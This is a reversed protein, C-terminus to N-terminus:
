PTAESRFVVAFSGIGLLRDAALEVDDVRVSQLVGTEADLEFDDVTGLEDGVEDLVREGPDLAIGGAVRQELEGDALRATSTTVMVADDGLASIDDWSVFEGGSKKGGIFLAIVRAEEPVVVVSQVSGIQEASDHAIVPKGKLATFSSM